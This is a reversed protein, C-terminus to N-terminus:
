TDPHSRIQALVHAVYEDSAVLKGLLYRLLEPDQLELLQRFAQKHAESSGRYHEELYKVLLEDLERMGRRCHWRLRAFEEDQESM